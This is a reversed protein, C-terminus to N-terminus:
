QSVTVTRSRVTRFEDTDAETGVIVGVRYEGATGAPVGGQATEGPELAVPASSVNALCNASNQDAWAGNERRQVIPVVHHDCAALYVTESGRNEVQFDLLLPLESSLSADVQLNMAATTLPDSDCAAFLLLPLIRHIRMM